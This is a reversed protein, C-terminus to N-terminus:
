QDLVTIIKHNKSNEERTPTPTDWIIKPWHDYNTIKVVLFGSFKVLCILQVLSSLGDWMVDM